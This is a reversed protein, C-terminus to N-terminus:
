SKLQFKTPCSIDLTTPIRTLINIWPNDSNLIITMPAYWVAKLGCIIKQNLYNSPLEQQHMQNQFCM